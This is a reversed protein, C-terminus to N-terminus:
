VGAQEFYLRFSHPVGIRRFFHPGFKRVFWAIRGATMLVLKDFIDTLRYSICQKAVSISVFVLRRVISFFRVHQSRFTACFFNLLDAIYQINLKQRKENIRAVKKQKIRNSEIIQDLFSPNWSVFHHCLRSRHHSWCEFCGHYFYLSNAGDFLVALHWPVCDVVIPTLHARVFSFACSLRHM